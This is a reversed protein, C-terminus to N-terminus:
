LFKGELVEPSESLQFLQSACSDKSKGKKLTRKILFVQDNYAFLLKIMGIKSQINLLNRSASKYLAYSPGDFFLFSKGSGIPAKILYKGKNFFLTKKQDRFPGINWYSVALLDLM